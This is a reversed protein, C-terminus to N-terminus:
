PKTIWNQTWTRSECDIAQESRGLLRAMDRSEGFPAQVHLSPVGSLTM